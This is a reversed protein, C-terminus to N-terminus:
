QFNRSLVFSVYELFSMTQVQQDLELQHAWKDLIELEHRSPERIKMCAFVREALESDCADLEARLAKFSNDCQGFQLTRDPPARMLTAGPPPPGARRLATRHIMFAERASCLDADHM